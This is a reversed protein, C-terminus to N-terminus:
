VEISIRPKEVKVAETGSKKISSIESKSELSDCLCKIREATREYGRAVAVEYAERLRPHGACVVIVEEVVVKIVPSRVVSM